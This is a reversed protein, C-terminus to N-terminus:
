RRTCLESRARSIAITGANRELKSLALDTADLASLTLREWPAMPFMRRLREAYDSPPTVVGLCRLEVPGKLGKDLDRLFSRWPETPEVTSGRNKDDPPM